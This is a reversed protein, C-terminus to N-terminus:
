DSAADDPKRPKLLMRNEAQFQNFRKQQEATLVASIERQTNTLIESIRPQFERRVTQLKQHSNVLIQHVQRRQQPDLRLRRDLDREIKGRVLEPNAIANRVFHRVVGRTVVVGGAFGATFVLLLVLIVKLHKM